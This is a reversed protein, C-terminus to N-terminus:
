NIVIKVQTLPQSSQLKLISVLIWTQFLGQDAELSAVRKKVGLHQFCMNFCTYVSCNGAFHYSLCPTHLLQMLVVHARLPIEALSQADIRSQPHFGLNM